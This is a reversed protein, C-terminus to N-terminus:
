KAGGVAQEGPLAYQDTEYMKVETMWGPMPIGEEQNISPPFYIFLTPNELKRYKPKANNTQLYPDFTANSNPGSRVISQRASDTVTTKAVFEDYVEVVTMDSEPIIQDGDGSSACGFLASISFLTVVLTRM